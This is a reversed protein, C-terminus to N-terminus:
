QHHHACRLRWRCSLGRASLGLLRQFLFVVQGWLPSYGGRALNKGSGNEYEPADPYAIQRGFVAAIDPSSFASLLGEICHGDTPIADQTFFLVYDGASQRLAFDRTGGHDFIDSPMQFLQVREGFARVLSVTEDASGSDIVLIEAEVTQSLLMNLQETIWREANLTPIIISVKM